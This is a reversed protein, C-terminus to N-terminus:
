ARDRGQRAHRAGRRGAPRKAAPPGVRVGRQAADAARAVPHRSIRGERAGRGLAEPPRVWSAFPVTSAARWGCPGWHASVSPSCYGEPPSRWRGTPSRAHSTPQCVWSPVGAASRCGATHPTSRTVRSRPEIGFGESGGRDVVRTRLVETFSEEEVMSPLVGGAETRTDALTRGVPDALRILAWDPGTRVVRQARTLFATHDDSDLSPATALTELVSVM